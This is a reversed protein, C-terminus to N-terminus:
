IEIPHQSRQQQKAALGSAADHEPHSFVSIAFRCRGGELRHVRVISGHEEPGKQSEGRFDRTVYVEM